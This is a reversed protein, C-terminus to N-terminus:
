SRLLYGAALRRLEDVEGKAMELANVKLILEMLVDKQYGLKAAVEACYKMEEKYLKDDIKMLQVLHLIIEFKEDGSLHGPVTAPFEDSFLPLIEAVMLHNAQGINLIYQREKKAVEGDIRALNILLRLQQIPEM